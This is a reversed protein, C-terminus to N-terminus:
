GSPARFAEAHEAAFARYGLPARGTLSEVDRTVRAANGGRYHRQVDILADVLYEPLGFGLAAKRWDDDPPAVYALQRGSAESLFRLRDQYTLAEPGTLEYAKGEHGAGTLVAAAARAVDGVHVASVPGGEPFAHVGTAAISPASALINQMYDNPRLFTWPLSSSRVLGEIARHPRGFTFEATPAGWVSIKVLHPRGARVAAEVVGRELQELREVPPAVLFLKEVGDLAADLSGPDLYDLQVADVGARRAKGVREATRYAARFRAGRATLEEVLASGVHGSAGLVLIM